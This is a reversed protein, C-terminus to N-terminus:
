AQPNTAEEPAAPEPEADAFITDYIEKLEESNLGEILAKAKKGDGGDDFTGALIDLTDRALKLAEEQETDSLTNDDEKKSLKDLKRMMQSLTLEEGAGLRRVLYEHGDILVKKRSKLERTNIQLM